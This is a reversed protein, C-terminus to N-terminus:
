GLKGKKCWSRKPLKESVLKKENEKQVYEFSLSEKYLNRCLEVLNHRLIGVNNEYLVYMTPPFHIESCKKDYNFRLFFQDGGVSIVEISDACELNDPVVFNLSLYAM